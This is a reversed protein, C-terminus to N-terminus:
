AAPKKMSALAQWFPPHKSGDAGDTFEVDSFGLEQAFFRIWDRHLFTDLPEPQEGREMMKTRTYFVRHHAPDEFELFSFILKGNPKLARLSDRMYLFCEEPYLHTFVSWHFIMDISEDPAAITLQRHVLATYGSCQSKLEDVLEEVIDAGIYRGKWGARQLAQATRGCGCGLDYISMGDTLGHHKLVAVHGDGQSFFAEMSVAGVSRALALRRDQPHDRLRERILQKYSRISHASM